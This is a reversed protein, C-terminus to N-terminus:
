QWKSTGWEARDWTAHPVDRSNWDSGERASCAFLLTAVLLLSAALLTRPHGRDKRGLQRLFGLIQTAYSRNGKM